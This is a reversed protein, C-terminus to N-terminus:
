ALRCWVLNEGQLPQRRPARHDSAPQAVPTFDRTLALEVTHLGNRALLSEIHEPPCAWMFPEGRWALWSDILASRPRFGHGGDPWQTMFSFIFESKPSGQTAVSSLLSQVRQPQLYMLVGEAVTVTQVTQASELAPMDAQALDCSMFQMRAPTKQGAQSLAHRKAAQTAPHDIEVVELLPFESALRMGLTDLGAGLVVLRQAGESLARRCRAEIWRKRHWYHEVIGPLTLREVFRWLSRGLPHRASSALLRDTM